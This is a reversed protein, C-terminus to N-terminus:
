TGPQRTISGTPSPNNYSQAMAYLFNNLVLTAIPVFIGREM